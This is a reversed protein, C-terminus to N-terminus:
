GAEVGALESVVGPSTDWEVIELMDSVTVILIGQYSGLDLLHKDGSVVYAAKAAVACELIRNDPEDAIVAIRAGPTVEHAIELMYGIEKRIRTDDWLFRMRLVRAVEVLIPQSVCLRVRDRRRRAIDLLKGPKGGFVLASLHVNSDLVMKLM